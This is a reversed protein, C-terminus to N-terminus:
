KLYEKDFAAKADAREKAMKRIMSAAPTLSATSVLGIFKGELTEIYCHGMTNPPPCGYPNCVRVVTGNEPNYDRRDIIDFGVANFIMVQKNRVRM